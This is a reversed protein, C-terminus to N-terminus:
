AWVRQQNVPFIEYAELGAPLQDVILNCHWGTAGSLEGIPDLAHTHSSKIWFHDVGVQTNILEEYQEEREFRVDSVDDANESDWDRRARVLAEAESLLSYATFEHREGDAAYSWIFMPLLKGTPKSEYVPSSGYWQPMAGIAELESPFKLCHNM